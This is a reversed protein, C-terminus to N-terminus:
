RVVKATKRLISSDGSYHVEYICHLGLPDDTIRWLRNRVRGLLVFSLLPGPHTHPPWDPQQRVRESDLWVHVRLDGESHPGCKLILFGYPHRTFEPAALSRLVQQRLPSDRDALCALQLMALPFHDSMRIRRTLPRRSLM